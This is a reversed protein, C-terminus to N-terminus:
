AWWYMAYMCVHVLMCIYMRPIRIFVYVYTYM